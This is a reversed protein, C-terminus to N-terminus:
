HHLRTTKDFDHKADALSLEALANLTENNFNMSYLYHKNKTM